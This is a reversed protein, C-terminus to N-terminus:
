SLFRQKGAPLIKLYKEIDTISKCFSRCPYLGISLFHGSKSKLCNQIREEMSEVLKICLEQDINEWEEELREM